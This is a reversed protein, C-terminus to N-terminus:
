AWDTTYIAHDQKLPQETDKPIPTDAHMHGTVWPCVKHGQQEAPHPPLLAPSVSNRVQAFM